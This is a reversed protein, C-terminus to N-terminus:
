VAKWDDCRRALAEATTSETIGDAITTKRGFVDELRVRYFVTNGSTMNTDHSFGTVESKTLSRKRTWFSVEDLVEVGEATFTVTRRHLLQYLLVVWIVAASVPWVIRFILPADKYILFVAAASWFVDFVILFGIMARNRAAPCFIRIPQGRGDFEAQIRRSALLDPLQGDVQHSIFSQEPTPVGVVAPSNGTRFVPVEFTPQISTGAVKLQLKWMHKVLPDATGESEPADLPLVFAVPLRFGSVDRTIEDTKVAADQSWIKENSTSSEDASKRTTARECILTLTAAGRMPLPRETVICGTLAGGPYAPLETMEFRAAGIVLRQRLRKLAFWTVLMWTGAFILVLPAFKDKGLSGSMVTAVVLPWIVLGSWITYSYSALHWERGSELISTGSWDAKWKWPEAPHVNQLIARKRAARAALFGGAVLGAGVAPFTLAFVAMFAQMEWRLTRYLVAEEPKQPNVFCRFPKGVSQQSKAKGKRPKGSVYKSLESHVDSQYSGINDSGKGFSVRDGFYERGGYQYQYTAHTQTSDGDSSSKSEVSEIRCPVEEWNRARWWDLFGSFYVGSLFIGACLFPLGFLAFCGGGLQKSSSFKAM